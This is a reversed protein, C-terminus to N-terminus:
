PANFVNGNSEIRNSESRIHVTKICLPNFAIFIYINSHNEFEGTLLYVFLCVSFRSSVWAHMFVYWKGNLHIKGLAIVLACVISWMCVCVYACLALSLSLSKCLSFSVSVFRLGVRQFSVCLCVSNDYFSIVPMNAHMFSLQGFLQIQDTAPFKAWIWIECFLHLFHSNEHMNCAFPGIRHKTCMAGAVSIYTRFSMGYKARRHSFDLKGNIFLFDNKMSSPLSNNLKLQSPKAEAQLRVFKPYKQGSQSFSLHKRQFLKNCSIRQKATLFM